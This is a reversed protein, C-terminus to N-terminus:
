TEDFDDKLKEWKDDSGLSTYSYESSNFKKQFKYINERVQDIRLPEGDTNNNMIWDLLTMNSLGFDKLPTCLDPRQKNDNPSFCHISFQYQLRSLNM